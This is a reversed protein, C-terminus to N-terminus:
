TNDRTRIFNAIAIGLGRETKCRNLIQKLQENSSEREKKVAESVINLLNPIVEEDYGNWELSERIKNEISQLRSLESEWIIHCFKCRKINGWQTEHIYEWDHENCNKVEVEQDTTPVYRDKTCVIYVPNGNNDRDHIGDKTISSLGQQCGDCMNKTM